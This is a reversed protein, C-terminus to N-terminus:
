PAPTSASREADSVEETFLPPNLNMIKLCSGRLQFHKEIEGLVRMGEQDVSQLKSCDLVLTQKARCYPKDLRELLTEPKSSRIFHGTIYLLLHDGRFKADSLHWSTEM